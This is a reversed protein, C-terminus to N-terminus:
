KSAAMTKPTECKAMADAFKAGDPSGFGTCPNWGPGANYAGNNGITIAHFAGAKEFDSASQYLFPNIFGVARGLSQNVRAIWGAWV